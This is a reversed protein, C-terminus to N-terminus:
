HAVAAAGHEDVLAGTTFRTSRSPSPSRIPVTTPSRTPWCGARRRRPRSAARAGAATSSCTTPDPDPRHDAVRGARHGRHGGLDAARAGPRLDPVAGAGGGDPARHRPVLRAARVLQLHRHRRGDRARGQAGPERLRAGRQVHDRTHLVPELLESVLAQLPHSTIPLRIGGHRRGGVLPRRRGTRGGEAGITGAPRRARGRDPRRRSGPRHGRLGAVLDVGLRDAARAYGWAVHDHRAIGGRPQFTAGLVPYRVDPSIDLIPCFRRSRRRPLWAADIGNLRNADVRRQAERVDHLTHALSM